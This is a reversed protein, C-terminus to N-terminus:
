WDKIEKKNETKFGAVANGLLFWTLQLVGAWLVFGDGDPPLERERTGVSDDVGDGVNRVFVSELWLTSM